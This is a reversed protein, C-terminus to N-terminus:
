ISFYTYMKIIHSLFSNYTIFFRDIEDKTESCCNERTNTYHNSNEAKEMSIVLKFYTHTHQLNYSYNLFIFSLFLSVVIKRFIFEFELFFFLASFM